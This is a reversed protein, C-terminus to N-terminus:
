QNEAREQFDLLICEDCTTRGEEQWPAVMKETTVLRGCKTPYYAVEFEVVRGERSIHQEKRHQVNKSHNRKHIM